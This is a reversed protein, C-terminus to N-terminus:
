GRRTGGTDRSAVRDDDEDGERAPGGLAVRLRRRARLVRTGVTAVPVGLRAAIDKYSLGDFAFLEFTSRLEDPLRPLAARIDDADLAEWWARGEPLPAAVQAEDIPQDPRASRRRVQDIFLNHMVRTMWAVHNVDAPLRDFHAVTKLLVDQVLDDPDFSSRCLKRAVALLTAQHARTLEDLRRRDRVEALSTVPEGSAGERAANSMRAVSVAYPEPRVSGFM